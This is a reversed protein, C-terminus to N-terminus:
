NRTTEPCRALRRNAAEVIVQFRASADWDSRVFEGAPCARRVSRYTKRLAQEAAVFAALREKLETCPADLLPISAIVAEGAAVRSQLASVCSEEQAMGASAGIALAVGGLLLSRMEVGVEGIDGKRM